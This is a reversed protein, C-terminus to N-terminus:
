IGAILVRRKPHIKGPKSHLLPSGSLATQLPPQVGDIAHLGGRDTQVYLTVEPVKITELKPERGLAKQTEILNQAQREAGALGLPQGDFGLDRESFHAKQGDFEVEIVTFTRNTSVNIAVSGVRGRARDLAVHASWSRQLGLRRALTSPIVGGYPSQGHVPAVWGVFSAGLAVLCVLLGRSLM